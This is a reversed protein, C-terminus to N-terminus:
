QTYNSRAVRKKQEATVFPPMDMEGNLAARIAVEEGFVEQFALYEGHKTTKLLGMIKESIPHLEDLPKIEWNSGYSPTRLLGSKLCKALGLRVMNIGNIEKHGVYLAM